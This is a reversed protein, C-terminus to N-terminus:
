LLLSPEHVNLRPAGRRRVVTSFYRKDAEMNRIIFPPHSIPASLRAMNHIDHMKGPESTLDSVLNNRPIVSLGSQIFRSFDWRYVWLGQKDPNSALGDFIRFWSLKESRSAFYANFFGDQRIAEYLNPDFCNFKWARRWTAWGRIHANRSFYYSYEEEYSWNSLFNSGSIHMVRNDDKYRELLEQCYLFFSEEPLCDDELIMGQTENDFFWDIASSVGRDPGLNETRFLKKVECDWDVSDQISRAQGCLTADSEV